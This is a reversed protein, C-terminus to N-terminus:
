SWSITRETLTHKTAHIKSPLTEKTLAFSTFEAEYVYKQLIKLYINAKWRQPMISTLLLLKLAYDGQEIAEQNPSFCFWLPLPMYHIPVAWKMTALFSLCILCTSKQEMCLGTSNSSVAMNLESSWVKPKSDWRDIMEVSLSVSGVQCSCFYVEGNEWITRLKILHVNM